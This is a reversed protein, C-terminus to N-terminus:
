PATRSAGRLHGRGGGTMAIGLEEESVDPGFEGVIEGEYIVLIRDALSRVEDFELSVLLIGRGADREAVLRRHVFEIAGVDLGRTPQAAVLVRPNSAIERAIVVKQQNGGSLSAALSSPGGGRVDYEAILTRARERMRNTLLWGHRSMTPTNYERLALNEALTFHLILGRRQRDEAIHSVGHRVMGRAGASTLDTGAVVISGAEAPRLGTIAEVLERQGNGDVGALAVIEGAHVTLSAGRVAPLDRDDRVALDRVELVPERPQAPPKDVRLLVERGVMLRALSEETAGEAPVTDIRKGRRLVTVRDAIELVENLKHSIFVIGTGDAKLAELVRFLDRAEQATLVATPEDLVLIRAGRYLARLIEVRQQMGVSVDEVRAEPDVVLGYRQSLERVRAAAGEVDLLAGRRPEKALVINEAVTMVPVLMFHQHVMGIGLEIAELPSGITVPRGDVRIEGEDPRYLGYLVSMLTSKGAGNEGLLAHVEGPRLDFDVGDNAVISGFRKTIGRLELASAQM